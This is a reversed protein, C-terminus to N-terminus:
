AAERVRLRADTAERLGAPADVLRGSPHSPSRSPSRSSLRSLPGPSPPALRAPVEDPEGAHQHATVM